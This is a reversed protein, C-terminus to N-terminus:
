MELQNLSRKIADRVGEDIESVYKIELSLRFSGNWNWDSPIEQASTIASNPIPDASVGKKASSDFHLYLFSNGRNPQVTMFAYGTYNSLNPYYTVGDGSGKVRYNGKGVVQQVADDIELALSKLNDPVRERIVDKPNEDPSSSLDGLGM